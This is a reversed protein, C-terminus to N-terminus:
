KFNMEDHKLARLWIRILDIHLSYIAEAYSERKQKKCTAFGFFTLAVLVLGCELGLGFDAFRVGLPNRKGLRGGPANLFAFQFSFFALQNPGDINGNWTRFLYGLYINVGTATLHDADFFFVWLSLRLFLLFLCVAVFLLRYAPVPNFWPKRM